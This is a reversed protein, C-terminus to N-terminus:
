ALKARAFAEEFIPMGDTELRTIFGIKNSEAYLETLRQISLDLADAIRYFRPDFLIAVYDGSTLTNPAFESMYVPFGMLRDPEGAQVSAQWQYQGEGDKLKDVQKAVDRHMVWIANEQYQSKLSWKVEKMGDFTVSTTNMDTSVDRSTSVGNSDATFIGLPEQSGSGTLFAKEEPVRMKYTIRDRVASEVDIGSARILKRSIKIRKALPHPHLERDGFEMTSDDSGTGVEQTWEADSPDTEITPVGLSDGTNVPVVDAFRRIFLEDDLRQMLTAAFGAPVTFGGEPDSGAKLDRAEQSPLDQIREVQDLALYSRFAQRYDLPHTGRTAEWDGAVSRYAEEYRRERRTLDGRERGEFLAPIQREEEEGDGPVPTLGEGGEGGDLRSRERQLETELDRIEEDLNDFEAEWGGYGREEKYGPWSQDGDTEEWDEHISRMEEHAKKRARKKENITEILSM